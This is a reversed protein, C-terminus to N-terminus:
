AIFSTSAEIDHGLESALLAPDLRLYMPVDELVLAVSEHRTNSRPFAKYVRVPRFADIAPTTPSTFPISTNPWVSSKNDGGLHGGRLETRGGAGWEIGGWQASPKLGGLQQLMMISDFCDEDEIGGGELQPHSEPDRRISLSPRTAIRSVQEPSPHIRGQQDHAPPRLDSEFTLKSYM